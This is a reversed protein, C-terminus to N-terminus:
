LAHTRAARPLIIHAVLPKFDLTARVFYASATLKCLFQRRRAGIEMPCFVLSGVPLHDVDSLVGAM